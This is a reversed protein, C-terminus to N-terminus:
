KDLKFQPNSIYKLFHVCLLIVSVLNDIETKKKKFIFTNNFKRERSQRMKTTWSYFYNFGPSYFELNHGWLNTTNIFPPSCNNLYICRNITKKNPQTPSPLSHTVVKCQLLMLSWINSPLKFVVRVHQKPLINLSVSSYMTM